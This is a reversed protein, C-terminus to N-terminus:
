APAQPVTGTLCSGPSNKAGTIFSTSPCTAPLYLGAKQARLVWSSASRQPKSLSDSSWSSQHSRHGFVGGSIGSKARGRHKATEALSLGPQLCLSPAGGANSVESQMFASFLLLSFDWTKMRSSSAVRTTSSAKCKEHQFKWTAKESPTDLMYGLSLFCIKRSARLRLPILSNVVLM